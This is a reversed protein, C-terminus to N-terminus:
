ASSPMRSQRKDRPSPSTYLLCVTAPDLTGDADTDNALPNVTVPEIAASTIPDDTAVPPDAVVVTVLAISCNTANGADCIEYTYIYTGGSTGPDITIEGTTTDLTIGGAAPMMNLGLTTTGDQATGSSNVAVDTGIEPNTVGGILDNAVVNAITGGDVGNVALPMDDTADLNVPSCNVTKLFIDDWLVVESFPQSNDKGPSTAAFVFVRMTYTTSPQLQVVSGTADYHGITQISTGFDSPNTTVQANPHNGDDMQTSAMLVEPSGFSADDDISIAFRYTGSSQNDQPRDGAYGAMAIGTLEAFDDTFAATTFTYQMYSGADLAAPITSRDLNVDFGNVQGNLGIYSAPSASAFIGTNDIGAATSTGNNDNHVWRIGINSFASGPTMANCMSGSLAQAQAPSAVSFCTMAVACLPAARLVRNAFRRLGGGDQEAVTGAAVTQTLTEKSQEAVAPRYGFFKLATNLM